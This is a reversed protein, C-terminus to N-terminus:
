IAVAAKVKGCEWHHVIVWIRKDSMAVKELELTVLFPLRQIPCVVGIHTVAACTIFMNVKAAGVILKAAVGSYTVAYGDGDHVGGLWFGFHSSGPYWSRWFGFSRRVQRSGLVLIPRLTLSSFLHPNVRLLNQAQYLLKLTSLLDDQPLTEPMLCPADEGKLSTQVPQASGATVPSRLPM